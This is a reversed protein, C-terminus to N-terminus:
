KRKSKLIIKQCIIKKQVFNNLKHNYSKDKESEEINEKCSPKM